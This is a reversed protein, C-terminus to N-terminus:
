RCHKKMAMFDRSMLQQLTTTVLCPTDRIESLDLSSDSSSVSVKDDYDDHEKTCFSRGGSDNEM